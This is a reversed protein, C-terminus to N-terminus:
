LRTVKETGNLPKLDRHIMNKSHLFEVGRSIDCMVNWIQYCKTPAPRDKVFYAAASLQDKRSTIFDDLNLDCLEMDIFVNQPMDGIHIVSVINKHGGDQCIKLIAQIEDEIVKKDV